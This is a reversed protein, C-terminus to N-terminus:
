GLIYIVIIFVFISLLLLWVLIITFYINNTTETSSILQNHEHIMKKNDVKYFFPSYSVEKLDLLPQKFLVVDVYDSLDQNIEDDFTLVKEIKKTNFDLSSKAKNNLFINKEVKIMCNKKIMIIGSYSLDVYDIFDNHNCLIEGFTEGSFVYFFIGPELERMIYSDIYINYLKSKIMKIVNLKEYVILSPKCIYKKDQFICNSLEIELYKNQSSAILINSIQFGNFYNKFQSNKMPVTIISELKFEESSVIDYEIVVYINDEGFEM